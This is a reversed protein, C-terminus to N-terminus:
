GAAITDGISLRFLACTALAHTFQLFAWRAHSPLYGEGLVEWCDATRHIAWDRNQSVQKEGAGEGQAQM